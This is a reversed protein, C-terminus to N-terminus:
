ISPFTLKLEGLSVSPIVCNPLVGKRLIANTALHRWPCSRCCIRRKPVSPLGYCWAQVYTSGLKELNGRKCPDWDTPHRRRSSSRHPLLDIHRDGDMLSCRSFVKTLFTTSSSANVGPADDSSSHSYLATCNSCRYCRQALIFLLSKWFRIM